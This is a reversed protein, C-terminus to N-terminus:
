NLSVNKIENRQFLSVVQTLGNRLNLSTQPPKRLFVVNKLPERLNIVAQLQM